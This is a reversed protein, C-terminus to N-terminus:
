IGRRTKKYGKTFSDLDQLCKKSEATEKGVVCSLFKDQFISRENKNACMKYKPSWTKSQGLKKCNYNHIVDERKMICTKNGYLMQCYAETEEVLYFKTIDKIGFKEQVMTMLEYNEDDSMCSPFLLCSWYGGSEQCEQIEKTFRSKRQTCLKSNKKEFIQLFDRVKNGPSKKRLEDHPSQSKEDEIHIKQEVKNNIEYTDKKQSFYM